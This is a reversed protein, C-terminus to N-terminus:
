REQSIFKPGRTILLESVFNTGIERLSTTKDSLNHKTSQIYINSQKDSRYGFLNIPPTQMHKTHKTKSNERKMNNNKANVFFNTFLQSSHIFYSYQQHTIVFIFTQFKKNILSNIYSLCSQIFINIHNITSIIIHYPSHTFSSSLTFNDLDSISVLVCCVHEGKSTLNDLDSVSVLICCVLM